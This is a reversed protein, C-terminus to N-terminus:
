CYCHAVVLRPRLSEILISVPVPKMPLVPLASQRTHGVSSNCTSYRACPPPFGLQSGSRCTASVPLRHGCTVTLRVVILPSAICRNNNGTSIRLPILKIKDTSPWAALLSNEGSLSAAESDLVSFILKLSTSASLSNSLVLIVAQRVVLPSQYAAHM